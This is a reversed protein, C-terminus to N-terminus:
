ERLNHARQKSQAGYNNFVKRLCSEQLSFGGSEGERLGETVRGCEGHELGEEFGVEEGWGVGGATYEMGRDVSGTSSETNRSKFPAAKCLLSDQSCQQDWSFLM